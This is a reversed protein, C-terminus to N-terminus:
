GLALDRDGSCISDGRNSLRGDRLLPRQRRGQARGDTHDRVHGLRTEEVVIGASSAIQLSGPSPNNDLIIAYGYRAALTAGGSPNSLDLAFDEDEEFVADAVTPITITRETTDGDPWTLTGSAAIYDEPGAPRDTTLLLLFLVDRLERRSRRRRRGHPTGRLDRRRRRNVSLGTQELGIIGPHRGGRGHACRGGPGAGRTSLAAAIDGDPLRAIGHMAANPQSGSRGLDVLTVGDDGFSTDLAGNPMLRALFGYRPGGADATDGGIVIAGSPELVLGGTSVKTRAGAVDFRVSGGTGFSTDLSGNLNFRAVVADASGACAADALECSLEATGAVVIRGDTQVAVAEASATAGASFTVIGDTGFSPDFVGHATLRVVAMDAGIFGAAVLKGDPQQTLWRIESATGTRSELVVRDYAARRNSRSGNTGFKPDLDGQRGVGASRNGLM